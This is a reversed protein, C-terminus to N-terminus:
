DCFDSFIPPDSDRYFDEDGRWIVPIASNDNTAIYDASNNGYRLDLKGVYNGSENYIKVIDYDSSKRNSEAKYSGYVCEYVDEDQGQYDYVRLVEINCDSDFHIYFDVSRNYPSDYTSGEWYGIVPHNGPCDDESCSLVSLLLLAILMKKM